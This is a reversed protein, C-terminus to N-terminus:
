KSFLKYWWKSEIRSLRFKEDQIARSFSALKLKNSENEENLEKIFKDKDTLYSYRYQIPSGYTSYLTETLVMGNKISEKFKLLEEYDKLNLTVTNM